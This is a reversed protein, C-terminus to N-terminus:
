LNYDWSRIRIKSSWIREGIRERFSRDKRNCYLYSSM